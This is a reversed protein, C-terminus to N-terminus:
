KIRTDILEELLGVFGMLQSVHVHLSTRMAMAIAEILEFNPGQRELVEGFWGWFLGGM